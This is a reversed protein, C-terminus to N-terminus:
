GNARPATRAGGDASAAPIAPPDPTIPAPTPVAETHSSRAVATARVAASSSASGDLAATSSASPLGIRAGRQNALTLLEFAFLRIRGPATLRIGASETPAGIEDLVEDIARLELRLWKVGAGKPKRTPPHARTKRM